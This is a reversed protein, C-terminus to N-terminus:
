DPRQELRARWEARVIAATAQFSMGAYVLDLVYEPWRVPSLRAALILTAGILTALADNRSTLWTAQILPNASGHFRWLLGVVLFAILIASAASFGLTLPDIPRPNAVKDWLDYLTHLGALGLIAAILLATAREARASRGFVFAALGYLAVDYAWDLGDKLLQRSDIALAWACQGAAFVLIGLAIAWIRRAYARGEVDHAPSPFLKLM